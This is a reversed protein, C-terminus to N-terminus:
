GLALLRDIRELNAEVADLYHNRGDGFHHELARYVQGWQQDLMRLVYNRYFGRTKRLLDEASQYDEIEGDGLASYEAAEVLEQYLAPLREPYDPAAMTGLIDGTGVVCGLCREREDRFALKSMDVNLATSRIALQVIRIEDPTVGFHPLFGEAFTASRVVHVVAHKAGTGLDDGADKLFGIDHLLIGTIGLEFDRVTLAPPPNSKLLGDLIRAAAVTSQCTHAFDHFATDCHQYGPHHGAFANQAQQFVTTIFEASKGPFHASFVGCVLRLAEAPALTDIHPSHPTKEM